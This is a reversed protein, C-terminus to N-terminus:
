SSDRHMRWQTRLAVINRIAMFPSSPVKRRKVRISAGIDWGVVAIAAPEPTNEDWFLRLREITAKAASSITFNVLMGNVKSM